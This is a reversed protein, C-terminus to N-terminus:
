AFAVYGTAVSDQWSWRDSSANFRLYKLLLGTPCGFRCYGMPVFLSGLLGGVAITITAWGAVGLVYADFPEIDVLSFGANTM